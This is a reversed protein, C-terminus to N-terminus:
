ANTGVRYFVYSATNTNFKRREAWVCGTIFQTVAVDFSENPEGENSVIGRVLGILLHGYEDTDANTSDYTALAEVTVRNPFRGGSFEDVALAKCRLVIHRIGNENASFDEKSLTINTDEYLFPGSDGQYRPIVNCVTGATLSVKWLTEEDIVTTSVIITFPPVDKVLHFIDSSVGHFANGFEDITAIPYVQGTVGAMDDPHAYKVIPVVSGKKALSYTNFSAVNLNTNTEDNTLEQDGEATFPPEMQRGNWVGVEIYYLGATASTTLPERGDQMQTTCLYNMDEVEFFIEAGQLHKGVLPTSANATYNVMKGWSFFGNDLWANKGSGQIMTGVGGAWNSANCFYFHGVNIQLDGNHLRIAWPHGNSFHHPINLITQNTTKTVTYGSGPGVSNRDVGEGLKNIHKPRITQGASVKPLHFSNNRNNSNPGSLTSM